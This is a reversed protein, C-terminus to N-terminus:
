GNYITNLMPQFKNMFTNLTSVQGQLTSINSKATTLESQLTSITSNATDLASQLEQIKSDVYAKNAADIDNVPEKVNRIIIPLLNAGGTTKMEGLILYSQDNDNSKFTTFVVAEDEANIGTSFSPLDAIVDDGGTIGLFSASQIRKIDKGNIDLTGLMRGGTLPLFQAGAIGSTIASDVYHKNAGDTSETPDSVATIKHNDMNLDGTMPVAGSAMFDGGGASAIKSDVYAKTAAQTNETPDGSLTLAGTLTGGALPLYASVKNDVYQKNAADKQATPDSLNAIKMDHANYALPSTGEPATLLVYGANNTIQEYTDSGQINRKIFIKPIIKLSETPESEQTDFGFGIFSNSELLPIFNGFNEVYYGSYKKLDELMQNLTLNSVDSLQIPKLATVNREAEDVYEQVTSDVYQKNAADTANSPEAVNTVANGGMSLVGTLAGGALPLYKKDLETIVPSDPESIEDAVIQPVKEEIQNSVITPVQTTIQNDVYQKNSVDTDASPNPVNVIKNGTMDINGGMTGGATPLYKGSTDGKNANFYGLTVVDTDSVPDKVNTVTNQQMDLNGSMTDGAKSVKTTKLEAIDSTNKDAKAEIRTDAEQRAQVEADLRPDLAALTDLKAVLTAYDYTEIPVDIFTTDNLQIRYINKENESTKVVKTVDKATLDTRLQDINRQLTADAEELAAEVEDVHQSLTDINEQLQQDAQERATQEATIKQTYDNELRQDESKREAEEADINAQLTEDAAKREATETDLARQFGAVVDKVNDVSINATETRWLMEGYKQTLEAVDRVYENHYHRRKTIYWFANVEPITPVTVGDATPPVFMFAGKDLATTMMGNALELAVTCNYKKFINALQEATCGSQNSGQVIVIFREKTDYNMGVGVRGILQDKEDPYFKDPTINGGMILVSNAQMANRVCDQKLQTYDTLNEYVKFFGNDTVGFTYPAPTEGINGIPAGKWVVAGGWTNESNYAPILKDAVTRQSANFVDEHVNANTTNNYALGLEFYIPQKARDLFPIHVVKYKASAEAIYGEETTIETYYADNCLASNVISQYAGYVNDSYRNIKDVVENMKCELQALQSQVSMGHVAQPIPNLIYGCDPMPPKPPPCSPQHEWVNGVPTTDAPGCWDPRMRREPENYCNM